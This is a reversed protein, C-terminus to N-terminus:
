VQGGCCGAEFSERVGIFQEGDSIDRLSPQLRCPRSSRLAAVVDKVVAAVGEAEEV